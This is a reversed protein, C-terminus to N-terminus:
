AGPAAGRLCPETARLSGAEQGFLFAEGSSPEEVVQCVLIFIM